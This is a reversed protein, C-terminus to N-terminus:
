QTIVSCEDQGHLVIQLPCDGQATAAVAVVHNDGTTWQAFGLEDIPRADSTSRLTIGNALDFSLSNFPISLGSGIAKAYAEKLTWLRLFLARRDSIPLALLAKRETVSTTRRALAFVDIKRTLSEVDIGCAADQTVVCAVADPSHSLSFRLGTAKFEAALEPRGGADSVFQWESPAVQPVRESLARRLLLHATVYSNRDRAFQFGAARQREADSLNIVWLDGESPPELWVHVATNM